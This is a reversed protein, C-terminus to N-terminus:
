RFRELYAALSGRQGADLFERSAELVRGAAAEFAGPVEELGRGAHAQEFARELEAEFLAVLRRTSPEDLGIERAAEGGFRRALVGAEFRSLRLTEDARMWAEGRGRSELVARLADRDLVRAGEGLADAAQGAVRDTRAGDELTLLFRKGTWDVRSEAVGDIGDLRALV